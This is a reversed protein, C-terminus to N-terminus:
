LPMVAFAASDPDLSRGGIELWAHAVVAGTESRRVGLMLTPSLDGLLRGLVLSRRLCTGGWPWRVSVRNVARAIRMAQGGTLGPSPAATPSSQLRVGLLRCVAPLPRARLGVEVLAFCLLVRLGLGVTGALAGVRRM